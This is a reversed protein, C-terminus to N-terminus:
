AAMKLFDELYGISKELNKIQEKNDAILAKLRAIEKKYEAIKDVVGGIIEQARQTDHNLGLIIEKLVVFLKATETMIGTPNTSAIAMTISAGAGSGLLVGGGVLVAMGGAVGLGGAAVAGGGLAALGSSIAAAGYLGSAAFMAAISGGMTAVALLSAVIGAGVGILVKNWYGNMKKITKEYTDTINQYFDPSIGMWLSIKELMEKRSSDDMELGKYAKADEADESLPFYPQFLACEIIVLYKWTDTESKESENVIATSIESPTNLLSLEEPEESKSEAKLFNNLNTHYLHCWKEKMEHKAKLPNLKSGLSEEQRADYSSMYSELSFLIRMQSDTLGFASLISKM